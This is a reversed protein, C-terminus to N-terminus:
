KKLGHAGQIMKDEWFIIRKSQRRDPTAPYKEFLRQDRGSTVGQIRLTQHSVIREKIDM